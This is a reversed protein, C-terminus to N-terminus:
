EGDPAPGNHTAVEEYVMQSVAAIVDANKHFDTGRTMVCLLYPTDPHFVIGCDHLQKGTEESDWIGFKHAVVTGRPVGAVLGEKFESAALLTMAEQSQERKLYSANYLQRFLSSYEKVSLLQGSAEHADLIGLDDLTQVALDRGHGQEELFKLLVEASRNDSYTMMRRMLERVTYTNGPEIREGIEANDDDENPQADYRINEDMIGPDTESLKLIAIMLPTKMLSAPFFEENEGIGFWPGNELDRFYVAVTTIGQGQEWRELDEELEDRFEEYERKTALHETTCRRAASLLSYRDDCDGKTLAAQCGALVSTCALSLTALALPATRASSM